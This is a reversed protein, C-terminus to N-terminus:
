VLIQFFVRFLFVSPVLVFFVDLARMFIIAGLIIVFLLWGFFFVGCVFVGAGAGGGRTCVGGVAAMVGLRGHWSWLLL